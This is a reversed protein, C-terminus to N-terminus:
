SNIQLAEWPGWIYKRAGNRDENMVNNAVKYMLGLKGRCNVM